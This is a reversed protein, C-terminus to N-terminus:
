LAPVPLIMAGLREIGDMVLAAKLMCGQCGTEKVHQIIDGYLEAGFASVEYVENIEQAESSLAPM